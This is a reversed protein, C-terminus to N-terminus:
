HVASAQRRPASGILLAAVPVFLLGSMKTILLLGVSLVCGAIRLITLRHLLEWFSWLALTFMLAAATDSTVLRGHALLAPSFTFLTLSVLGGTQGFLSKSWLFVTAGLCLELVVMMLRSAFLVSRIDNGFFYLFQHGYRDVDAYRWAPQDVSPLQAGVLLAEWRGWRKPFQGNQPFMRHDQLKWSTMGGTLHGLEDFTLSDRTLSSVALAAGHVTLLLLPLFIRMWRRGAFRFSSTMFSRMQTSALARLGRPEPISQAGMSEM